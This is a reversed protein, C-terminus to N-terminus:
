TNNLFSKVSELILLKQKAVDSSAWNFANEVKKGTKIIGLRDELTPEMVFGKNISLTEDLYAMNDTKVCDENKKHDKDWVAYYEDLGILRCVGVFYIVGCKGGCEIISIGNENLNINWYKKCLTEFLIKDSAGEVLLIKKAFFLENREPNFQTYIKHEDNQCLKDLLQRDPISIIRTTNDIRRLIIIKSGMKPEIFHTSHTSYIIQIHKHSLKKLNDFLIRQTHPDLFSEPEEIAITFENQFIEAYTQFLTIAILNQTGYGLKNINLKPDEKIDGYINLNKFFESPEFIKFSIHVQDNLGKTNQEINKLLKEKLKKYQINNELIKDSALMSKTFDDITKEDFETSNNLKTLIKGWIYSRGIYMQQKLDRNSPIYIFNIKKRIKNTGYFERDDESYVSFKYDLEQDDKHIKFVFKKIEINYKEYDNISTLDRCLISKTLSIEITITDNDNDHFDNINFKSLVYSEGLVNDIAQLVTTKGVNNPGVISNMNSFNLELNDITRFNKIIVKEIM